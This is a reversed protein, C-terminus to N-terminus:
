LPAEGGEEGMEIEIGVSMGPRFQYRGEPSGDVSRVVNESDSM